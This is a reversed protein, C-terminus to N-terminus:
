GRANDQRPVTFGIPNRPEYVSAVIEGDPVYLDGLWEPGDPVDVTLPAAEPEQAPIVWDEDDSWYPSPTWPDM